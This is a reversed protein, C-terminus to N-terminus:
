KTVRERRLGPPAILSPFGYKEMAAAWTIYTVSDAVPRPRVTGPFPLRVLIRNEQIRKEAKRIRIGLTGTRNMKGTLYQVARGEGVGEVGPVDDTNCGAIAKVSVWDAPELGYIKRFTTETMLKKQQPNWASIELGDSLCQWLDRDASVMVLRGGFSETAAAILDDAEYGFQQFLNNYGAARLVVPIMELQRYYDAEAKREEAALRNQRARRSYKYDAYLERRKSGAGDFFFAADGTGFYEMCVCVDRLFGFVTGNELDGAGSFSARRAMYNGDFLLTTM